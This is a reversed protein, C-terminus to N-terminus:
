VFLYAHFNFHAAPPTPVKLVLFVLGGLLNRSFRDPLKKKVWPIQGLLFGCLSCVDPLLMAGVLKRCVATLNTALVVDDAEAVPARQDIAAQVAAALGAGGNNNNDNQNQRNNGQANDDNFRVVINNEGPQARRGEWKREYPAM